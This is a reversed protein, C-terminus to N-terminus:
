CNSWQAMGPPTCQHAGNDQNTFQLNGNSLITLESAWVGNASVGNLLLEGRPATSISWTAGTSDTLSQGYTITQPPPPPPGNSADPVLQAVNTQFTILMDPTMQGLALAAAEAKVMDLLMQTNGTPISSQNFNISTVAEAIGVGGLGISNWFFTDTYSYESTGFSTARNDFGTFCGINDDYGWFCQEHDADVGAILPYGAYIAAKCQAIFQDIGQGYVLEVGTTQYNPANAIAAATPPQHIAWQQAQYADPISASPYTLSFPWFSEACWGQVTGGNNQLWLGYLESLQIFRGGQILNRMEAAYIDSVPQCDGVTDGHIRQMNAPYLAQWTFVSPLAQAKVRLASLTAIAGMGTILKRRTIM